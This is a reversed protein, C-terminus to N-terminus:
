IQKENKERKLRIEDAIQADAVLGTEEWFIRIHSGRNKGAFRRGPRVVFEDTVSNETLHRDIQIYYMHKHKIIRGYGTLIYEGDLNMARIEALHIIYFLIIFLLPLITGGLVMAALVSPRLLSDGDWSLKAEGAEEYENTDDGSTKGGVGKGPINQKKWRDPNQKENGEEHTNKENKATSPTVMLDPKQLNGNNKFTRKMKELLTNMDPETNGAQDTEGPKETIQISQPLKRGGSAFGTEGETSEDVNNVTQTLSTINGAYDRVYCIYTGNKMAVCTNEETWADAGSGQMEWCYDRIGSSGYKDTAARDQATVTLRVKRAKERTDMSLVAEPELRDMNIIQIETQIENGAKDRILCVYTGNESIICASQGSWVPSSEEAGNEPLRNDNGAEDLDPEGPIEETGSSGNEGTDPTEETGGDDAEDERDTEEKAPFWVIDGSEDLVGWAYGAEQLGSKGDCGEAERDDGIVKITINENTWEDTSPVLEAEPYLRDINTVEYAAETVNGANDRVRCVYTGNGSVVFTHSATWEAAPGPREKETEGEEEKSDDEGRGGYGWIIDGSEDLIGWLYAQPPLGSKGYEATRAADEALVTLTVDEKTWEEESATIGQIVPELHDINLVTISKETINGAYDRIKCKYTGNRSATYTDDATWIDAGNGDREWSLYAGPLGEGNHLVTARITVNQRSWGTSASLQIQPFLSVVQITVRGSSSAGSTIDTFYGTNVYSSGGQHANGGYYGGGGGEDTGDLRRGNYSGSDGSSGGTNKNAGGGGGAVMIQNNLGNGGLRVDSAGGGAGHTWYRGHNGLDSTDYGSAAGGNYSGPNGGPDGHSRRGGGLGNGGVHIYLVTGKELQIIGQRMSGQGGALIGGPLSQDGGAGGYCAIRYRGNEPVTWTQVGNTCEYSNIQGSVPNTDSIGISSKASAYLAGNWDAEWVEDDFDAAITGQDEWTSQVTELSIDIEAAEQGAGTEEVIEEAAKEMNDTEKTAEETIEGTNETEGAIEEVMEEANETKAAQEEGTNEETEEQAEQEETESDQVGEEGSQGYQESLSQTELYQGAGMSQLEDESAHVMLVSFFLICSIIMCVIKTRNNRM